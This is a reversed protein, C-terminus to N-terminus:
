QEPVLKHGPHTKLHEQVGQLTTFEVGCTSCKILPKDSEGPIPALKHGPHTKVHEEAEKLTTFEVGCTSCKILPKASDGAIPVIKHGPHAIMHEQLGKLTTFEVGCTQCKILPKAVDGGTVPTAAESKPATTEDALTPVGSTFVCFLALASVAFIVTIFRHMTKSRRQNSVEFLNEHKYMFFLDIM